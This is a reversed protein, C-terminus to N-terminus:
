SLKKISLKLAGSNENQTIPATYIGSSSSKQACTFRGAKYNWNIRNTHKYTHIDTQRDTPRYSEFVKVYFTWIQVDPIAGPLVHWTRNHLDDPWPWPWLLRFPGFDRNGCHLSRAGVVGTRYFISGDPKRTADPKRYRRISHHLLWRQWTVPLSRRFVIVKSIKSTPCQCECM